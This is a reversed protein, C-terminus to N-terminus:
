SSVTWSSRGLACAAPRMLLSPWKSACPSRSSCSRSAWSFFSTLLTSSALALALAMTSSALASAAAIRSAARALASARAWDSASAPRLSSSATLCLMREAALSVASAREALTAALRAAAAWITRSFTKGHDRPHVLHGDDTATGDRLVDEGRQLRQADHLDGAEGGLGLLLRQLGHPQPAGVQGLALGPLAHQGPSRRQEVHQAQGGVLGGAARRRHARGRGLGLDALGALLDVPEDGLAGLQAVLELQDLGVQGQHAVQRRHQGLDLRGAVQL